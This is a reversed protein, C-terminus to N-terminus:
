NLDLLPIGPIGTGDSGPAGDDPSYLIAMQGGFDRQAARYGGASVLNAMREHVMERVRAHPIELNPQERRVAKTVDYATFNAKDITQAQLQKDVLAALLEETIPIRM